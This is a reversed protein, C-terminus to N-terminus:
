QPPANLVAWTDRGDDRRDAPVLRWAPHDPDDLVDALRLRKRDKADLQAAAEYPDDILSCLLALDRLHRSVDEPLGCAAAKGVVAALLNPRPVTGARDGVVVTVMETRALAQTGGPVQVTRGPPTTTLKARTGVGEPALVDVMVPRDPHRSHRVYRHAVGDPSIGTSVFGLAELEAVVQALADPTARINALVDGDQSVQPPVTDHELAHLLVMQGGILAWPVKLRDSLDLLVEWLEDVPDGLPPLVITASM